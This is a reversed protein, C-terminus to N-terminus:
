TGQQVLHGLGLLSRSSYDQVLNRWDTGVPVVGVSKRQLSGVEVQLVSAEEEVVVLKCQHSRSDVQDWKCCEMRHQLVEWPVM